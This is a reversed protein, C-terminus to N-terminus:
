SKSSGQQAKARAAMGVKAGPDATSTIRDERGISMPSGSVQRRPPETPAAPVFGTREYQADEEKRREDRAKKLRESDIVLAPPDLAGPSSPAGIIGAPLRLKQVVRFNGAPVPAADKGSKGGKSGAKGKGAGKAADFAQSETEFEPEGGSGDDEQGLDAATVARYIGDVMKELTYYKQGM